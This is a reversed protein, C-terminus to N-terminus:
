DDLVFRVISGPARQALMGLAHEGVADRNGEPASVCIISKSKAYAVDINEMGAGVRGICKLRPCKDLLEKTIKFKSRLVLGDYGPLIDMLEDASKEWYLDCSFGQQQLTEHLVPHNSDAFLIRM